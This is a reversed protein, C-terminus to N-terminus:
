RRRGAQGGQRISAQRIPEHISNAAGKLRAYLSEGRRSCFVSLYLPGGCVAPMSRM